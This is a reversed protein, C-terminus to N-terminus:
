GNNMWEWQWIVLVCGSILRFGDINISQSMESAQPFLISHWPLLKNNM